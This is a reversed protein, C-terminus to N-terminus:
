SIRSIDSKLYHDPLLVDPIHIKFDNTITSPTCSFSPNDLVGHDINTAMDLYGSGTDNKGICLLYIDTDSFGSNNEITLVLPYDVAGARHPPAGLFVAVCLTLILFWNQKRNVGFFLSQGAFNLRSQNM